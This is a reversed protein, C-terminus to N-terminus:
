GRGWKYVFLKDQECETSVDIPILPILKNHVQWNRKAVHTECQPSWWNNKQSNENFIRWELQMGGFRKIKGDCVM